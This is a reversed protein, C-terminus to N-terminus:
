EIIRHAKALLCANVCPQIHDIDGHVLALSLGQSAQKLICYSNEESSGGCLIQLLPILNM